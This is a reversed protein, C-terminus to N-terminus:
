MKSHSFESYLITISPDFVMRFFDSPHRRVHYLHGMSISPKGNQFITSKGHCVPLTMVLNYRKKINNKAFDLMM